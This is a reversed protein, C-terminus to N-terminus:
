SEKQEHNAGPLFLGSYPYGPHGWNIAHEKMLEYIERGQEESLHTTYFKGQHRDVYLKYAKDTPEIEIGSRIKELFDEPPMSGCYSCGREQGVLGRNPIFSDLNEGSGKFPGNEVHMGIESRRPCTFNESM